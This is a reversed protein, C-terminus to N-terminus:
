FRTKYVKLRLKKMQSCKKKGIDCYCLSRHKSNHQGNCVSKSGPTIPACDDNRGTSFPTGPYDRAGHFGNCTYGAEAMKEAVLENTTLASQKEDNCYRGKKNCM